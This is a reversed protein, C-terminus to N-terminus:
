NKLYGLNGMFHDVLQKVTTNQRNPFMGKNQSYVKNGYGSSKGKNLAIIANDNADGRTLWEAGGEGLFNVMAYMGDGCMAELKGGSKKNARQTQLYMDYAWIAQVAPDTYNLSESRGYGMAEKYKGWQGTGEDIDDRNTKIIQFWGLAKSKDPNLADLKFRSEHYILPAFYKEFMDMAEEKTIGALKAFAAVFAEIAEQKDKYIDAFNMNNGGYSDFSGGNGLGGAYYSDDYGGGGSVSGGGASPLVVIKNSFATALRQNNLRVLGTYSAAGANLLYVLRSEAGLASYFNLESQLTTFLKYNKTYVGQKIANKREFLNVKQSRIRMIENMPKRYNNVGNRQTYTTVKSVQQSHSDALGSTVFGCVMLLVGVIRKVRNMSMEKRCAQIRKRVM